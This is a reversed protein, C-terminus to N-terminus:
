ILQILDENMVVISIMFSIVLVLMSFYRNWDWVDGGELPQLPVSLVLLFLACFGALWSWTSDMTLSYLQTFAIVGILMMSWGSLGVLAKQRTTGHIYSDQILPIFSLGLSFLLQILIGDASMYFDFEVRLLWAAVQEAVFIMLLPVLLLFAEKMLLTQLKLQTVLLFSAALLIWTSFLVALDLFVSRAEVEKLHFFTRSLQTVVTTAISRARLKIVTQFAARGSARLASQLGKHFATKFAGRVLFLSFVGTFAHFVFGQQVASPDTWFLNLESRFMSLLIIPFILIMVGLILVLLSRVHRFKRELKLTTM